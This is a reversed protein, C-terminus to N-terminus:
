MHTNCAVRLKAVGDHTLWIAERIVGDDMEFTDRRRTWSRPGVYIADAGADLAVQAAALSGAPM